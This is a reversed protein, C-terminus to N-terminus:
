EHKEGGEAKEDVETEDITVDDDVVEAVAETTETAEAEAKRAREEAEIEALFAAKEAEDVPKEPKANDKVFTWEDDTPRNTAMKGLKKIKRKENARRIGRVIAKILAKTGIFAGVAAAASIAAGILGCGICMIGTTVAPGISLIGMVLALISMVAGFIITAYVGLIFGLLGFFIWFAAFAIGCALPISVPASVIGIIVWWVASIKKKVTPKENLVTEDGDLIRAAYDAKIQAAARKPSGLERLIEDETKEGSELVEDFYEEFFDTAAVIEEPPLKKLESRLTIIFEQRTM